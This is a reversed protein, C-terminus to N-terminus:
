TKFKINFSLSIREHQTGNTRVGHKLWGPFLIIKGNEPRIALENLLHQLYVTTTPTNHPYPFFIDGDDGITDFYYVGSMDSSGHNHVHAYEKHHSKTIWSQTIQFELFTTGVAALYAAVSNQIEDELLNCSYKKIFNNNFDLDSLHHSKWLPHQKFSNTKEFELIAQKIETQVVLFNNKRIKGEFLPIDSVYPISGSNIQFYNLTSFSENFKMDIAPM